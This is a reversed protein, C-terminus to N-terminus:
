FHESSRKDKLRRKGRDLGEEGVLGAPMPDEHGLDEGLLDPPM